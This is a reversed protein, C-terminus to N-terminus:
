SISLDDMVRKANENADRQDYQLGDLHKQLKPNVVNNSSSKFKAQNLTTIGSKQYNSILKQLYQWPNNASSSLEAAYLILDNQINHDNTWKAYASRDTTRITRNIGAAKFVKFLADDNVRDTHIADNARDISVIGKSHWQQLLLNIQDFSPNNSQSVRQAAALITQEDMKMEKIWRAYLINQKQTPSTSRLGLTDLVRSLSKTHAEQQRFYEKVQSYTTLGREYLSVLTKHLYAVNPTHISVTEKCALLIAEHEFKFENIWKNYLRTEDTTPLRYMGLHNLVAKVDSSYSNNKNIRTEADELTSVGDKAWDLAVKNMYQLSVQAGKREICYSIMHLAAEPSMGLVEIWDYITNLDTSSLTRPGIVSQLAINFDKYRDLECATDISSQNLTNKVNFYEVSFPKLSLIRVLGDREWYSFANIVTNSDLCLNRAFAEISDDAISPNLCQFLGYLYTKVFDGPARLMFEQIFINELPTVDYLIASSSLKCFSM